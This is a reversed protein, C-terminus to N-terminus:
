LWDGDENAVKLLHDAHCAEPACWCVLNYGALEEKAARVLKPQGDFWAKHKAIVTARDGDKGIVFPNGFKTTRDVLIGFENRLMTRRNLVTPKM